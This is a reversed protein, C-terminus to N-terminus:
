RRGNEMEMMRNCELKIRTSLKDKNNEMGREMYKRGVYGPHKVKRRFIPHGSKDYWRLYDAHGFIKGLAQITHPKTGDNLYKHLPIDKPGLWYWKTAAKMFGLKVVSMHSIGSESVGENFAMQQTPMLVEEETWQIINDDIFQNVRIQAKELLLRAVDIGM